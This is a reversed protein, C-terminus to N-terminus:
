RIGEVQAAFAQQVEGRLRVVDQKTAEIRERKKQQAEEESGDENLLFLM